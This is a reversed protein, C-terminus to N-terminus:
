NGGNLYAVIKDARSTRLKCSSGGSGSKLYSLPSTCAGGPKEFVDCWAEAFQAATIDSENSALGSSMVANVCATYGSAASGGGYAKYDIGEFAEKLIYDTEIAAAKDITFNNWIDAENYRALLYKKYPGFTWQCFGIGTSGSNVASEFSAKNDLISYDGQKMAPTGESTVNAIIGIAFADSAGAEKLKDYLYGYYDKYKAFDSNLNYDSQSIDEVIKKGSASVKLEAGSSPNSAGPIDKQGDGNGSSGDDEATSTLEEQKSSMATIPYISTTRLLVNDTNVKFFGDSKFTTTVFIFSSTVTVVVVKSVPNMNSKM